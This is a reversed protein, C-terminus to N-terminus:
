PFRVVADLIDKRIPKNASASNRLPVGSPVANVWSNLDAFNLSFRRFLVRTCPFGELIQQWHMLPEPCCLMSNTFLSKFVLLLIQVSIIVLFDKNFFLIIVVTKQM